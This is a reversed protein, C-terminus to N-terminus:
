DEKEEETRNEKKQTIKYDSDKNHPYKDNKAFVQANNNDSINGGISGYHNGADTTHKNIPRDDSM